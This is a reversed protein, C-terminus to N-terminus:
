EIERLFERLTGRRKHVNSDDYTDGKFEIYGCDVWAPGGRGGPWQLYIRKDQWNKARFGSANLAQMMENINM